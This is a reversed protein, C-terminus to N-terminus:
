FFSIASPFFNLAYPKLNLVTGCFGTKPECELRHLEVSWSITITITKIKIMFPRKLYLHVSKAFCASAGKESSQQHLNAHAAKVNVLETKVTTLEETLAIVQQRLADM